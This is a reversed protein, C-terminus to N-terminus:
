SLRALCTLLIFTAGLALSFLIWIGAPTHARWKLRRIRSASGRYHRPPHV